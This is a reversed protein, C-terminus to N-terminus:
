HLPIRRPREKIPRTDGTDISHKAITCRGKTNGPIDFVDKNEHLLTRLLANQKPTECGSRDFMNELDPPLKKMDATWSLDTNPRSHDLEIKSITESMLEPDPSQDSHLLTSCWAKLSSAYGVRTYRAINLDQDSLNMLEVYCYGGPEFDLLTRACYLGATQALDPEPEFIADKVTPVSSHAPTPCYM